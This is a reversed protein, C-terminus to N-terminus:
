RRVNNDLAYSFGIPAPALDRFVQQVFLGASAVGTRPVYVIDFRRLPVLDV